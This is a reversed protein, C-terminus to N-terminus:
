ELDGGFYRCFGFFAGQWYKECQCPAENWMESAASLQWRMQKNLNKRFM